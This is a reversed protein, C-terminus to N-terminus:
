GARGGVVLGEGRQDKLDHGIREGTLQGEEANVGTLHRGAFRNVVNGLTALFANAAQHAHVGVFAFINVIDIAPSIQAATPRLVIVVPSVM